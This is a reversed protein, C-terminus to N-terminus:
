GNSPLLQLPQLLLQLLQQPRCYYTSALLLRIETQMRAVEQEQPLCLRTTSSSHTCVHTCACEDEAM